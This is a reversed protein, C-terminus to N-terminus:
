EQPATLRQRRLMLEWGDDLNHKLMTTTFAGYSQMAEGQDYYTMLPVAQHEDGKQRLCIMWVELTYDKKKVREIGEHIVKLDVDDMLRDMDESRSM